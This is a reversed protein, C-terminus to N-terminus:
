IKNKSFNYIIIRWLSLNDGKESYYIKCKIQIIYKHPIIIENIFSKQTLYHLNELVIYYALIVSFLAYFNENKKTFIHKM